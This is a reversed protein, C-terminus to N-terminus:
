FQEIVKMRQHIYENEIVIKGMAEDPNESPNLLLLPANIDLLCCQDVLTMIDPRMDFLKRIFFM